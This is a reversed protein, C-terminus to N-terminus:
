TTVTSPLLDRFSDARLRYLRLVRRKGLKSESAESLYLLLPEQHAQEVHADVLRLM